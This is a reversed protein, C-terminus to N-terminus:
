ISNQILTSICHDLSDLTYPSNKGQRKMSFDGEIIVKQLFVRGPRNGPAGLPTM